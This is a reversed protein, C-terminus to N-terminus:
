SSSNLEYFFLSSVLDFAVLVTGHWLAAQHPILAGMKAELPERLVFRQAPLPFYLEPIPLGNPFTGRDAAKM